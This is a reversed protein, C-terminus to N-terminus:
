VYYHRKGDKVKQLKADHRWQTVRLRTSCCRFINQRWSLYNGDMQVANSRHKCGQRSLFPRRAQTRKQISQGDGHSIGGESRHAPDARVRPAERQSVDCPSDDGPQALNAAHSEKYKQSSRITNQINRRNKLLMDRLTFRMVLTDTSRISGM